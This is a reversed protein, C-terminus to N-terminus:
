FLGQNQVRRLAPPVDVNQWALWPFPFASTTERGSARIGGIVPRLRQGRLVM